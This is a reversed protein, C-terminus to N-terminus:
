LQPTEQQKVQPDDNRKMGNRFGAQFPKSMKEYKSAVPYVRTAGLECYKNCIQFRKLEIKVVSQRQYGFKKRHATLSDVTKKARRKNRGRVGDLAWM